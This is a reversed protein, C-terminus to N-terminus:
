DSLHAFPNSLGEYEVLEVKVSGVLIKARCLVPLKNEDDSIWVELDEATNFIRGEQIVPNFRMCRYKGSQIKIVETGSYRIKLDFNEDDVFSPVSIIDGKKLNKLNLTRAYFAASFMDQVNPPVDHTKGKQTEVKQKNQFFKYTQKSEYGGESIDRIFLWPFVGKEDIFSEYTDDVHFFFDVFGQSKGKGIIHLVDRGFMQKDAKKVELEAFGADIIGYHVLYKAKEGAKFAKHDIERLEVAKKVPEKLTEQGSFASFFCLFLFLFIIRMFQKFLSIIRAKNDFIM